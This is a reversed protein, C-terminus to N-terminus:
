NIVANSTPVSGQLGGNADTSLIRFISRGTGFTMADAPDAAGVKQRYVHTYYDGVSFIAPCASLATLFATGQFTRFTNQANASAVSILLVFVAGYIRLM